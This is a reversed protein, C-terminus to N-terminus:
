RKAPAQEAGAPTPAPPPVDAGIGAPRPELIEPRVPEAGATRQAPSAYVIAVVGPIYKVDVRGRDSRWTAQRMDIYNDDSTQDNPKGHVPELAKVTREFVEPGFYANPDTRLSVLALRGAPDLVFRVRFETGGVVQRDIGAAVVNGDALREPPVLAKAEGPFAKLLEDLTM